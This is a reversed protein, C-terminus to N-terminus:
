VACFSSQSLLVLVHTPCFSPPHHQHLHAGTLELFCDLLTLVDGTELVLSGRPVSIGKRFLFLLANLGPHCCHCARPSAWLASLLLLLDWSSRSAPLIGTPPLATLFLKLGMLSEKFGSTLFVCQLLLKQNVAVGCYRLLQPKQVVCVTHHGASSM